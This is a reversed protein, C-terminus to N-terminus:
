INDFFIPSYSIKKLNRSFVVEQAQKNPDPHFYNEM